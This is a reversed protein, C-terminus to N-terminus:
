RLIAFIVFIAFPWRSLLGIRGIAIQDGPRSEGIARNTESDAFEALMANDALDAIAAFVEM